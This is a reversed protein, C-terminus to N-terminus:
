RSGRAIRHRTFRDAMRIKAPARREALELRVMRALETVYDLQYAAASTFEKLHKYVDARCGALLVTDSVWPLPAAATNSGNFANVAKKYNCEFGNGYMPPPYFEVQHLVPPSAESSDDYMAFAAVDGITARPGAVMDLEAKSFRNLPLNTIPSLIAIATRFDASLTYVNQMIVFGAGAYVTGAAEAGNGQYPRDLTMSTTAPTTLITYVEVDGVRYIKRGIQGSVFATGAGSVAASGVTFTATDTASQYAALTQITLHGELGSWPIHSLVQEYRKQLFEDLLDLSVGPGSLQLQMRLQGWTM